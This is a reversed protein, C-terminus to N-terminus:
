PRFRRLAWDKTEEVSAKTREPVWPPKQLWRVGLLGLIAAVLTFVGTTILWAVWPAFVEELGKALTVGLYGLIYLGLLGVIMFSAIAKVRAVVIAIVEAKALEIEAKVLAQTNEVASKLIDATPRPDAESPAMAAPAVPPPSADSM